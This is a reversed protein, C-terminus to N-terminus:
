IVDQPIQHDQIIRFVPVAAYQHKFFGSETMDWTMLHGMPLSLLVILHGILLRFPLLLRKPLRIPLRRHYDGLQFYHDLLLLIGNWGFFLLQKGFVANTTQTNLDYHLLASIYEHIMGSAIFVGIVALSRNNTNWRIPKYVGQKLSTHILNNWRRGWFDSPSSSFFMPCRTVEEEFQLGTLLSALASVGYM